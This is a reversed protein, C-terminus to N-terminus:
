DTASCLQRVRCDEEAVREGEEGLWGVVADCARPGQGGLETKRDCCGRGAPLVSADQANLHSPSLNAHDLDEVIPRPISRLAACVSSSKSRPTPPRQPLQRRLTRNCFSM